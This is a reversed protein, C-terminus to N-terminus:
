REPRQRDSRGEEPERGGREDEVGGVARFLERLLVESKVGPRVEVGSSVDVAHPRVRDLAERVNDPGIGGALIVERREGVREAVDWDFSRGTGGPVGPTYADLLIRVSPPYRDVDQERFGGGVRFAKWVEVDRLRETYDPLEGGHLQAAGVGSARVAAEVEELPRDVFVGVALVGRPLRSVIDGAREPAIYRPSSRHFIFGLAWAGLEVALRADEPRCIGCVKVRTM